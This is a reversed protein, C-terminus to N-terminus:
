AVSTRQSNLPPNSQRNEKTPNNPKKMETQCAPLIKGDHPSVFIAMLMPAEVLAALPPKPFDCRDHRHSNTTAAYAMNCVENRVYKSKQIASERKAGVAGKSTKGSVLPERYLCFESILGRPFERGGERASCASDRQRRKGIDANDNSM